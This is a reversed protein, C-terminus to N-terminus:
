GNARYTKALLDLLIFTPYPLFTFLLRINNSINIRVNECTASYVEEEEM